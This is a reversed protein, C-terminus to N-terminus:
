AAAGVPLWERRLLSFQLMDHYQDRWYGVQRLRGEEVFGLKRILALSAFNEPHIQAEVRNLNLDLFSWSLVASLAEQM